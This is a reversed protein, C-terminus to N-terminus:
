LVEGMGTGEGNFFFFFFLSHLSSALLNLSCSCSSPHFWPCGLIQQQEYLNENGFGLSLSKPPSALYLELLRKLAKKHIVFTSKRIDPGCYSMGNLSETTFVLPFYLAIVMRNQKRELSLVQLWGVGPKGIGGPFFTETNFCLSGERCGVCQRIGHWRGELDIKRKEPAIDLNTGRITTIFTLAPVNGNKSVVVKAHGMPILCLWYLSGDPLCVWTRASGAKRMGNGKLKWQWLIERPM